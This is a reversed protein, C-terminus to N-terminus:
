PNIEKQQDKMIVANAAEVLLTATAMKEPMHGWVVAIKRGTADTIYVHGGGSANATIWVTDYPGPAPKTGASM